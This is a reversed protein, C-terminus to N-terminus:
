FFTLKIEVKKTIIERGKLTGPDKSSVQYLAEVKEDISIKNEFYTPAKAEFVGDKTHIKLILIKIKSIDSYSEATFISFLSSGYDIVSRYSSIEEIRKEIVKAKLDIEISQSAFPFPYTISTYLGKFLFQIVDVVTLVLTSFFGESHEKQTEM